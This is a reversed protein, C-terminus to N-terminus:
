SIWQYVRGQEEDFVLLRLNLRTVIPQGFRESLLSEYVWRPVALFVLGEPETEAV